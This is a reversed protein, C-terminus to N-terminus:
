VYKFYTGCLNCGVEFAESNTQTQLSTLFAIHIIERGSAGCDHCQLVHFCYPIQQQIVGPNFVTWHLATQQMFAEKLTGDFTSLDGRM